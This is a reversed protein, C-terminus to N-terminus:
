ESAVRLNFSVIKSSVLMVRTYDSTPVRKLLNHGSLAFVVMLDSVPYRGLSNQYRLLHIM